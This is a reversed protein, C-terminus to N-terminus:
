VAPTRLRVLPGIIRRWISSMQPFNLLIDFHKCLMLPSFETICFLYVFYVFDTRQWRMTENWIESSGAGLARVQGVLPANLPGLACAGCPPPVSEAHGATLVGPGPDGDARLHLGQPARRPCLPEAGMCGPSRPGELSFPSSRHSTQSALARPVFVLFKIRRAHRPLNNRLTTKM